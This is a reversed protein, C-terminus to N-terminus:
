AISVVGYLLIVKELTEKKCDQDHTNQIDQLIFRLLQIMPAVGIGVAIMTLTKIEKDFPYNIKGM